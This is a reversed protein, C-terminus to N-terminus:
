AVAVSSRLLVTPVAAFRPASWGFRRSFRRSRHQAYWNRRAFNQSFRRKRSGDPM